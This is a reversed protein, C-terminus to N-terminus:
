PVKIVILKLGPIDKFDKGNETLLTFDRQVCQAALWLDQIRTGHSKGAKQLRSALRGFVEATETTIRLQPKRRLRKLMRLARQRLSDDAVLEAGHTLEAVNVPSVYVPQQRTIAHIDAASIRGREVAVWLNSDILFGM